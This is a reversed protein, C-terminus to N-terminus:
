AAQTLAALVQFPDKVKWQQAVSGNFSYAWVPSGPEPRRDRDDVVLSTDALSTIYGPRVLLNWQQSKTPTGRYESLVLPVQHAIKGDKFDLALTKGGADLLIVNKSLEINWVLTAGSGSLPWLGVPAGIIQDNVGLGRGTDAQWQIVNESM